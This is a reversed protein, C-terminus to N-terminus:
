RAVVTDRLAIVRSLPPRTPDTPDQRTLVVENERIRDVRWNLTMAVSGATQMVKPSGVYDGREVVYGVQTNDTIMAKPRSLGSVIAILKMQEVPTNPMIVARQVEGSSVDGSRTRFASVYPRFPDRNRESEVFDDDKFVLAALTTGGEAATGGKANAAGAKSKSAGGRSSAREVEDECASLTLALVCGLFVQGAIRKAKSAM